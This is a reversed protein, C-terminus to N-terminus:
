ISKKVAPAVTIYSRNPGPVSGKVLLLNQDPRIDSVFLNQVTVKSNGYRGPMKKGKFVRAPYASAGISGGHRFFEHTGHSRKAGAMGYRKMVGTFGRGKSKGTVDVYDGKNFMDIGIEQGIEYQDLAAPAVRSEALHRKPSIGAKAYLGFESKRIKSEKFDEFGIVLASYGDREETKKDVVVCPGVRLVTVPTVRGSEDFIQTMGIKNGMLKLRMTCSWKTLFAETRDLKVM